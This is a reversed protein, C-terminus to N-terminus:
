TKLSFYIFDSVMVFDALEDAAKAFRRYSPSAWAGLKYLPLGMMLNAMEVIVVAATDVAKKNEPLVHEDLCGIRTDLAILAISEIGFNHYDELHKDPM